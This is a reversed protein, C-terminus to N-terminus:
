QSIRRGLRDAKPEVFDWVKQFVVGPHRGLTLNFIRLRLSDVMIMVCFVVLTLLLAVGLTEGPAFEPIATKLIQRLAPATTPYLLFLYPAFTLRAIGNVLRIHRKTGSLSLGLAGFAMLLAPFYGPHNLLSGSGLLVQLGITGIVGILFGSVILSWSLRKDSILDRYYWSICSLLVYEFLFLLINWGMGLRGTPDLVGWVLFSIAALETHRKRGLSKLAMNLYPHILLFIIYCTPFWWLSTLTPIFSTIALKIISKGDLSIFDSSSSVVMTCLLFVIGYCLVQRELTWARRVNSRIRPRGASLYWATIGFFLDDGVGGFKGFLTVIMREGFGIEASPQVVDEVIHNAVIMLMAVIRLLEIKSNRPPKVARDGINESMLLLM